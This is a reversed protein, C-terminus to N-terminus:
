FKYYHQAQVAETNCLSAFIENCNNRFYNSVNANTLHFQVPNLKLNFGLDTLKACQLHRITYVSCSLFSILILVETKPPIAEAKVLLLLSKSGTYICARM